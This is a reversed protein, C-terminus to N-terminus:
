RLDELAACRCSRLAPARARVGYRLSQHRSAFQERRIADECSTPAGRTKYQVHHVMEHFLVSRGFPTDVDVDERLTIVNLRYVALCARCGADMEERSVVHVAPLDAVLYGASVLSADRLLATLTAIDADANARCAALMLVLTLAATRM